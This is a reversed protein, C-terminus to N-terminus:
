LKNEGKKRKVMGLGLDVRSVVCVTELFRDYLKSVRLGETRSPGEDKRVVIAEASKKDNTTVIDTSQTANEVEDKVSILGGLTLCIDKRGDVRRM